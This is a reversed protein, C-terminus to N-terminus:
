YLDTTRHQQPWIKSMIYNKWCQCKFLCRVDKATQHLTVEGQGKLETLMIKYRIFIYNWRVNISVTKIEPTTTCVVSFGPTTSWLSFEDKGQCDLTVLYAYHLRNM